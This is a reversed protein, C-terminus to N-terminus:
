KKQIGQMNRPAMDNSYQMLLTITVETEPEGPTLCYTHAYGIHNSM